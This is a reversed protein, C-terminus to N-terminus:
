APQAALLAEGAQDQTRWRPDLMPAMIAAPEPFDMADADIDLDWLLAPREGHWRLSYSLRGFATRANRVDISRGRWAQDFGALLHLEQDNEVVFAARTELVACASITSWAQSQSLVPSPVAGVLVKPPIELSERAAALIHPRRTHQWLRLFGDLSRERELKTAALLKDPDLADLVIETAAHVDGAELLADAVCLDDSRSWSDLDARTRVVRGGRVSTQLRRVALALDDGVTEGEVEVQLFQDLHALWGNEVGTRRPVEPLPTDAGFIVRLAVGELMPFILAAQATGETSAAEDSSEAAANEVAPPLSAFDAVAVAASPSRDARLVVGGDVSVTNDYVKIHEIIGLGDGDIPRVALALAVPTRSDNLYDIAIVPGQSTQVVYTSAVVSGGDVPFSTEVIPVVGVTQRLKRTRSPYAWGSGTRIWWDLSFRDDLTSVLGRDDVTAVPGTDIGGITEPSYSAAGEKGVLQVWRPWPGEPDTAVLETLRDQRNAPRDGRKM